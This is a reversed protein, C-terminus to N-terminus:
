KKASFIPTGIADTIRMQFEWQKTWNQVEGNQCLKVLITNKGAKLDSALKFHDIQTNLHYENRGFLLKGNLWVKWGNKCALRLEVPRAKDSYFETWAYGTVEKLNGLPENFDVKGYDNTSTIEKWRVKGLKGDYEANLDLKEEPPFVRDYGAIATNDFPGIVHWTKVWGFTKGLDVPKSLEGLAKAIATIQDIDRAPKLASEYQAVAANTNGAKRLADAEDVLRQVSDRRLEPSPDDLMKTMLQEATKPNVSAILDFALRRARPNHSRDNVFSELASVPLKEGKSAARDVVADVAARLWNLALDNADDMGALLVPLSKIEAQSLAQWAASAASNGQGEPGVARIVQISESLNAASSFSNNGLLVLSVSLLLVIRHMTAM